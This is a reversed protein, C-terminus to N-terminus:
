EHRLIREEFQLIRDPYNATIHDLFTDPHFRRSEHRQIIDVIKQYSIARLDRRADMDAERFEQKSERYENRYAGDHLFIRRLARYMFMSMRAEIAEILSEFYPFKVMDMEDFVNGRYALLIYGENYGTIFEGNQIEYEFEDNTHYPLRFNLSNFHSDNASLDFFKSSRPRLVCFRPSYTNRFVGKDDKLAGWTMRYLMKEDHPGLQQEFKQAAIVIESNCDNKVCGDCDRMVTFACDDHTKTMYAVVEKKFGCCKERSADTDACGFVGILNKAGKPIKARKNKVPIVDFFYTLRDPPLVKEVYGMYAKRLILDSNPVAELHAKPIMAVSEAAIEDYSILRQNIM